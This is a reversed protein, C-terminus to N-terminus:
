YVLRVVHWIVYGVFGVIVLAVGTMLMLGEDPTIRKLNMAKIELRSIRVSRRSRKLLKWVRTGAFLQELTAAEPARSKLLWAPV